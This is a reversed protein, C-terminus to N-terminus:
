KRFVLNRAREYLSIPILAKLMQKSFYIMRLSRLGRGNLIKEFRAMPFDRHLAITELDLLDMKKNLGWKMTRLGLLGARECAARVRSNTYGGPPALITPRTGTIEGILGISKRLQDDIERDDLKDLRRHAHSHCGIVHGRRYLEAIHIRELRGNGGIKETPVFFIGRVGESELIPAVIEFHDITGDDFTVFCVKQATEKLFLGRLCGQEFGSRKLLTLQERLRAASVAFLEEPKSDANTISHYTLFLM